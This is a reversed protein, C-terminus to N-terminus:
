CKKIFLFSALEPIILLEAHRGWLIVRDALKVGRVLRLGSQSTHLLRRCCHSRQKRKARKKEGASEKGKCTNCNQACTNCSLHRDPNGDDKQQPHAHHGPSIVASCEACLISRLDEIERLTNWYVLVIAAENAWQNMWTAMMRGWIWLACVCIICFTVTIIVGDVTSNRNLCWAAIRKSLSAWKYATEECLTM